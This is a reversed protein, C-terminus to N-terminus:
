ASQDRVAVLETGPSAPSAGDTVGLSPSPSGLAPNSSAGEAVPAAAADSGAPLAMPGGERGSEAAEGGLDESEESAPPPVTSVVLEGLYGVFAVLMFGIIGRIMVFEPAIGNQWAAYMVYLCVAAAGYLAARLIPMDTM